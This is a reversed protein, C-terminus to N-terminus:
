ELERKEVFFIASIGLIIKINPNKICKVFFYAFVIKLPVILSLTYFVYYSFQFLFQNLHYVLNYKKNGNM